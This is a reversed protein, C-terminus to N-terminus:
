EIATAGGAFSASEVPSNAIGWSTGAGVYATPYAITMNSSLPRGLFAYANLKQNPTAWGASTFEADLSDAGPSDYITIRSQDIPEANDVIFGPATAYAAEFTTQYIHLDLFLRCTTSVDFTTWLEILLVEDARGQAGAADATEGKANLPIVHFFMRKPDTHLGKYGLSGYGTTLGDGFKYKLRMPGMTEVADLNFRIPGLMGFARHIMWDIYSSRTSRVVFDCYGGSIFFEAMKTTTPFDYEMDLHVHEWPSAASYVLKRSAALQYELMAKPPKSRHEAIWFVADELRRYAVTRMQPSGATAPNLLVDPISPLYGTHKRAKEVATLLTTWEDKTPYPGAPVALTSQGWGFWEHSSPITGGITTRLKAAGLVDNFLLWLGEVESTHFLQAGDNVMYLHGVTGIGGTTGIFGSTLYAVGGTIHDVLRVAGLSDQYLYRKTYGSPNYGSEDTGFSKFEPATIQDFSGNLNSVNISSVKTYNVPTWQDDAHRVLLTSEGLWNEEHVIMANVGSPAQLPATVFSFNAVELINMNADTDILFVAPSQALKILANFTIVHPMGSISNNLKTRPTEFAALAFLTGDELFLGIEGFDFPGIDAGMECVINTVDNDVISYHHPTGTYLTTGHLATDSISPSYGSSSGIRFETIEIFPGTPTATSAVNLGATTIVFQPAAM